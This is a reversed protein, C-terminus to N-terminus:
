SMESGTYGHLQQQYVGQTSAKRACNLKMNVVTVVAMPAHDDSLTTTTRRFTTDFIVQLSGELESRVKLEM